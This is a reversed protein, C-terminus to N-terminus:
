ARGKMPGSPRHASVISTSRLLPRARDKPRETVGFLNDSFPVRCSGWGTTVRFLEPKVKPLIKALYHQYAPSDTFFVRRRKEEPQNKIRVSGALFVGM